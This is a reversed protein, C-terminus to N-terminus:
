VIQPTLQTFVFLQKSNLYYSYLHSLQIIEVGENNPIIVDAGQGLLIKVAEIHGEQSALYVPTRGDNTRVSVDADQQLLLRVIQIHGKFAAESIPTWGDENQVLFIQM